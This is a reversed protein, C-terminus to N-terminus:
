APNKVITQKVLIQKFINKTYIVRHIYKILNLNRKKDHCQISVNIFIALQSFFLIYQKNFM